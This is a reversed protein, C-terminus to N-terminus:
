LGCVLDALSQESTMPPIEAGLEKARIADLTARGMAVLQGSPLGNASVFAEFASPSTFVFIDAHIAPIVTPISRYVPLDIVKALPELEQQISRLGKEAGPFLIDRGRAIAAFARATERTDGDSGTFDPSIGIENLATATGSGIAGIMATSPALLQQGFFHQVGRRSSFFIWDTFPMYRVEITEYKLTSVAHVTYGYTSVQKIFNKAETEDRSIYVSRHEKRRLASLAKEALIAASDARVFIRRFASGDMPQLSAWLQLEGPVPQCYVGLPLQCGGEMRNLITREAEIQNSIDERSIQAIWAITQQDDSRTQYALVGQAAAPIFDHPPVIERVLDDLNAKLRNLGASALVIADYDGRRLKEIRTPVNGRLDRIELDNRRNELQSKRRLSSTGVIGGKRIGFTRTTDSSEPRVLITESCDERYSVGAICLGDPQVTPLDKHSHVALDIEGALLADELEKTFFGKGEMKNFSLHQIQDGKTKIIRIEVELGLAELLDRTYHAQWLALDSGRSGITIKGNKL